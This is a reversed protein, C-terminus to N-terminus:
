CVTMGLVLADTSSLGTRAGSSSSWAVRAAISWPIASALAPRVTGMSSTRSDRGLHIEVDEERLSRQVIQSFDNAVDGFIVRVGGSAEAIRQQVVNFQQAAKGTHAASNALPGVHSFQRVCRNQNVVLDALVLTNHFDEVESV